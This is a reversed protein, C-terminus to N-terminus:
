GAGRGWLVAAPTRLMVRVDTWLSWTAVYEYDLRLMEDFTTNDRGSVQWVGTLGPRMESRRRAWGTIRRDTAVPLPRPGVLSMEGRLVNFLQPLEDLSTKRLLRGVRTIRPDKDLKLWGGEVSHQMLEAADRDSYCAM